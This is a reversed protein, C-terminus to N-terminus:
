KRPGLQIVALSAQLHFTHNKNKLWEDVAKAVGPLAESQYDDVVIIAKLELREEILRLSQMISEYYDGDLFAFSISKPIDNGNLEHFWGKHIAPLPLNANRFNKIFTHKSVALEGAQFQM